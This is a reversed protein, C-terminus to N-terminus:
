CFMSLLNRKVVGAIKKLPHELSDPNVKYNGQAVTAKRVVERKRFKDFSPALVEDGKDLKEGNPDYRYTRGDGEPWSVDIADVLNEDEPAAKDTPDPEPIPEPEIIPEPVPEPEIIPEPEPEPIPEPEPEPEPPVVELVPEPDIPDEPPAPPFDVKIEFLYLIKACSAIFFQTCTRDENEYMLVPTQITDRIELMEPFTNVYLIQYGEMDFPNNIKQIYSKYSAVLKQVKRSYDLHEDRTLVIFLVTFVIMLGCLVGFVIALVKLVIKAIGDLALVQSSAPVSASVQPTVTTQALPISLEIVYQGEKDNAFTESEGVVDVYMSVRLTNTTNNLEYVELFNKAIDNYMNYDIYVNDEISLDRDGSTASTEPVLEYVPNYIVMGSNRDKIELVAEVNYSYKYTVDKADMNLDYRFDATMSEILEAVYAHNGNLYEESYFENDALYAKYVVSGQEKFSVYTKRDLIGFVVSTVVTLFALALAIVSFLFILKKRSKQYEDRQLKEKESM